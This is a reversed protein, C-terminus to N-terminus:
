ELYSVVKGPKVPPLFLACQVTNFKSIHGTKEIFHITRDSDCEEISEQSIDYSDELKLGYLVADLTKRVFEGSSCRRASLCPDYPDDVKIMYRKHELDLNNIIENIIEDIGIPDQLKHLRCRYKQYRLTMNRQYLSDEDSDSGDIDLMRLIESLIDM